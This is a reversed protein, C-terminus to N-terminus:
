PQTDEDNAEMQADVEDFREELTKTYTANPHKLLVM